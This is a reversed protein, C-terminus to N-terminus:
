LGPGLESCLQQAARTVLLALTVSPHNSTAPLETCTQPNENIKELSKSRRSGVPTVVTPAMKRDMLEGIELARWSTYGRATHKAEPQSLDMRMMM